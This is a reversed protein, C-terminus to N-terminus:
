NIDLFPLKVSTNKVTNAGSNNAKIKSTGIMKDIERVISATGTLTPTIRV